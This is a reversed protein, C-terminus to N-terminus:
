RPSPSELNRRIKMVAERADVATKKDEDLSALRQRVVAEIEPSVPIEAEKETTKM